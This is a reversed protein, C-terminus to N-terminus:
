ILSLLRIIITLPQAARGVIGRVSDDRFTSPTFAAFSTQKFLREFVNGVYGDVAPRVSTMNLGVHPEEPLIHM